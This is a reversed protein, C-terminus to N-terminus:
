YFDVPFETYIHLSFSGYGSEMREILAVYTTKAQLDISELYVGYVSDSFEESSAILNSGDFISLRLHPRYIKSNSSSSSASSSNDTHLHIQAKSPGDLSFDIEVRNNGDWERTISRKFL